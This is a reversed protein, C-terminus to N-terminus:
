KGTKNKKELCRILDIDSKRSQDKINRMKEKKAPFPLHKKLDKESKRLKMKM